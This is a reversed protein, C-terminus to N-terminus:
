QPPVRAALPKRQEPPNAAGARGLSAKARRILEILTNGDRFELSRGHAFAKAEDTFTGCTVM